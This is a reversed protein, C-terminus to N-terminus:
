FSQTQRTFSEIPNFPEDKFYWKLVKKEKKNEYM